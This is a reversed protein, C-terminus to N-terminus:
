NGRGKLLFDGRYTQASKGTAPHVTGKREGEANRKELRLPSPGHSQRQGTFGREM